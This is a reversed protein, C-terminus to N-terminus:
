ATFRMIKDVVVDLDARTYKALVSELLVQAVANYVKEFEIDDMSSYSLSKAEFRTGGSATAVIEYFGAAIVVDKRWRDFNKQVPQGKFKKRRPEWADFGVTLLAFMKRHFKPNRPIKVEIEALEGAEMKVLQGWFRRWAKEDADGMGELSGFLFDRAAEMNPPIAKGTRVISIKSM